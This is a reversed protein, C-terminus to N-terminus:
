IKTLVVHLDAAAEWYNKVAFDRAENARNEWDPSLQYGYNFEFNAKIDYVGHTLNNRPDERWMKNFYLFSQECVPPWAHSFDQYARCSKFYPCVITIKGGPKLCRYVEEIFRPRDPGPVHEFFHACHFEEVSDDAWPWPYKLLDHVLDPKADPYLDVGTFGEKKNRGCGLDIKLEGSSTPAATM